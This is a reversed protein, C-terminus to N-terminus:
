GRYELPAVLKQWRPPNLLCAPCVGGDVPNPQGCYACPNAILQLRERCSPCFSGYDRAAGCGLCLGPGLLFGFLRKLSLGPQRGSM